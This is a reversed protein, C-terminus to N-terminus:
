SPLAFLTPNRSRVKEITYEKSNNLAQQQLAEYRAPEQQLTQLFPIIETVEQYTISSTTLSAPVQLTQPIIFPKAHKIVDFINGSSKTLGYVEPIDHCIATNVVSPIFIFHAENLQRDFEEQHVVRTNYFQIRTYYTPFHDAEKIINKGYEDSYGGLITLHLPFQKREAEQVLTWLQTYDRRKKDITGPVVLHIYRTNTAAHQLGDFVAGPVNHIHTHGGSQQALYPVMTDSVVNFEKVWRILLRKGIHHVMKRINWSSTSHFLCNIDHVTIVIRSSRLLRIVLAFLIHNSSITNIYLIDPQLKQAHRYFQWFFSLRSIGKRLVVWQFRSAATGFLDAFRKHTPPDTYIHIENDPTDFLKIVPYAGEFHETEFIGIKM